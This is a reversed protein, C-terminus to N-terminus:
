STIYLSQNPRNLTESPLEGFLRRYDVGFQSMHWFGWKIALDRIKTSSSDSRFLDRRVGNLRLATLYSKPSIGFREVFAYHLTRQSVSAVRCLDRVTHPQHPFAKLYDEVRKLAVDRLRNLPKANMVCSSSLILILERPLKFQLEHIFAPNAILTPVEKLQHGLKHLYRRFRQMELFGVEVIEKGYLREDLDSLGESRCIDALLEKSFSLTFVKFGAKSIADLEGGPPFVMVANTPIVMRRWVFSNPIQGEPGDALIAFTRLDSPPDGQQHNALSFKAYSFLVNEIGFQTLDAKFKGRDIQKIDLNWDRATQIFDDIDQFHYNILFSELGMEVRVGLKASKQYQKTLFCTYRLVM